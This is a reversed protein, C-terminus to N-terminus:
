GRSWSGLALPWQTVPIAKMTQGSDLHTTLSIVGVSEPNAFAVYRKGWVQVPDLKLQQGNALQVLVYQVDDGVTGYSVQAYGAPRILVGDSSIDAPETDDAAGGGCSSSGYGDPGVVSGMPMFCRQGSGDAGSTATQYAFLLWPKGDITGSAIVGSGQVGPMVPGIAASPVPVKLVLVVLGVIAAIALAMFTAM